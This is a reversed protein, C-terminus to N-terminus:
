RRRRCITQPVDPPRTAGPEAYAVTAILEGAAIRPLTDSTEDNDGFALLLNTGLV